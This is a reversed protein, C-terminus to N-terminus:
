KKISFKSGMVIDMLKEEDPSNNFNINMSFDYGNIYASFVKQELIIQKKGPSYLKIELRDFMIGDIKVAGLTYDTPIGKEKYVDKIMEQVAINHADYDGDTKEDFPEMTSQFSNFMNKRITVLSVLKSDNVKTGYMDEIAKKGKETIEYNERKTVVEWDRPLATTWGVEKVTYINKEDLKGAELEKQKQELTQKPKRLNNCAPAIFLLLLCFTILPKMPVLKGIFRM